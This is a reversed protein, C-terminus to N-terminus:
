KKVPSYMTIGHEYYAELMTNVMKEADFVWTDALAIKSQFAAKKEVFLPLLEDCKRLASQKPHHVKVEAQYEEGSVPKVRIQFLDPYYVEAPFDQVADELLHLSTGANDLTVGIYLIKGKLEVLRAFPSQATYPTLQHAHGSVIWEAKKGWACVPETPSESRKVNPLKRFYESLAGMKSPSEAVDFVQTQQIYELQLGANPSSPMLIHGDEGLVQMLADVVTKPGGDVYGL